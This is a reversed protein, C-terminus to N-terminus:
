PRENVPRFQEPLLALLAITLGVADCFEVEYARTPSSYVEIITGVMGARLGDDPLDELLVVEDFLSYGVCM